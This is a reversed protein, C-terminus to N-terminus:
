TEGMFIERDEVEARYYGVCVEISGGEGNCGDRRTDAIQAM